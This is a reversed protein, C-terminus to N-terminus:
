PQPEDPRLVDEAEDPDGPGLAPASDGIVSGIASTYYLQAENLFGGIDGGAQEIFKIAVTYLYEAWEMFQPVEIVLKQGETIDHHQKIMTAIRGFSNVLEQAREPTINGDEDLMTDLSAWAAAVANRIDMVDQSELYDQMRLSLNRHRLMSQRGHSLKGKKDHFKCRGEGPHDTGSGANARCVRTIPKDPDWNRRKKAGCIANGREEESQRVLETYEEDWVPSIVTGLPLYQPVVIGGRRM